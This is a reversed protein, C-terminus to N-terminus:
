SFEVASHVPIPASSYLTLLLMGYLLSGNKQSGCILEVDCVADCQYGCVCRRFDTRFPPRNQFKKCDHKKRRHKENRRDSDARFFDAPHLVNGNLTHLGFPHALNVVARNVGRRVQQQRNRVARRVSAFPPLRHEAEYFVAPVFDSDFHVRGGDIQFFNDM